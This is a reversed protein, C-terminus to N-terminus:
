CELLRAAIGSLQTTFQALVAAAEGHRRDGAGLKRQRAQLTAIYVVRVLIDGCSGAGPSMPLFHPANKATRRSSVGLRAM